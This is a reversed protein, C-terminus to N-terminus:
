NYNQKYLILIVFRVTDLLNNVVVNFNFTDNINQNYLGPPTYKLTIYQVGTVGNTFSSSSLVVDTTTSLTGASPVSTLRLKYILNNSNSAATYTINFSQPSITDNFLLCVDQNTTSLPNTMTISIIGPTTSAVDRDYITVTFSISYSADTTPNANSIFVVKPNSITTM